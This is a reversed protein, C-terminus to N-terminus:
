HGRQCLGTDPESVMQLLELGGSDSISVMQLLGSSDSITRNPNKRRPKVEFNKFGVHYPSTEVGKYFHKTGRELQYLIEYDM